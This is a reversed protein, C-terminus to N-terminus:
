VVDLAKRRRMLWFSGPLLLALPFGITAALVVATSPPEVIAATPRATGLAFEDPIVPQEVDVGSFENFGTDLTGLDVPPLTTPAATVPASPGSAITTSTKPTTTTTTTTTSTTLVPPPDGLDEFPAKFKDVFMEATITYESNPGLWASVTINYQDLAPNLISFSEPATSAASRAFEFYPTEDAAPDEKLQKNDWLFVDLDASDDWDFVFKIRIDDSPGAEPLDFVLPITDCSTSVNCADPDLTRITEDSYVAPNSGSIGNYSQVTVGKGVVLVERSIANASPAFTVMGVVPTALILAGIVATTLRTRTTRFANM